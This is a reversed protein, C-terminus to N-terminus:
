QLFIMIQSPGEKGGKKEKFKSEELCINYKKIYYLSLQNRTLIINDKTKEDYPYELVFLNVKLLKNYLDISKHQSEIKNM